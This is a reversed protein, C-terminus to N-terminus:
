SSSCPPTNRRYSSPSVLQIGKPAEGFGGLASNGVADSMRGSSPGNIPSNLPMQLPSGSLGAGNKGVGGFGSNLPNGSPSNLPGNGNGNSNDSNVNSNGNLNGNLQNPNPTASQSSQLQQQLTNVQNQDLSSPALQGPTPNNLYSNLADASGAGSLKLGYLPSASLTSQINPASSDLGGPLELLSSNTGGPIGLINTTGLRVGALETSSAVSAYPNNPTLSTGVAAGTSGLLVTGTPPAVGRSSGFFQRPATLSYNPSNATPVGSSGATFQDVGSGPLIGRFAVPDFERLRGTLGKGGTVNGYVIDNSTVQSSGSRGPGNYGGSGVGNNADLAHGDNSTAYQAYVSHSALVPAIALAASTLWRRYTKARM